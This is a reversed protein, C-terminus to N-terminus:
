RYSGVARQGIATVKGSGTSEEDDEAAEHPVCLAAAETLRQLEQQKSKQWERFGDHWHEVEDLSAEIRAKFQNTIRDLEAQQLRNQETQAAEFQNVKDLYSEEYEKLARQRTVVDNLVQGVDTGSAELAMLLAKRKFAPSMGALHCSNGMEAVKQIGYALEPPKVAASRYIQEFPPPVPPVAPKRTNKEPWETAPQGPGLPGKLQENREPLRGNGNGSRDSGSPPLGTTDNKGFWTEFMPQKLEKNVLYRGM